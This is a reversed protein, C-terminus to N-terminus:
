VEVTLSNCDLEILSAYHYLMSGVLRRAGLWVGRFLLSCSDDLLVDFLASIVVLVLGVCLSLSFALACWAVFAGFYSPFRGGLAGQDFRM